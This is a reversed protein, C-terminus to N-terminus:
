LMVQEHNSFKTDNTMRSMLDGKRQESFYGIPLTLIKKYLDNRLQVMMGNRMPSMFYYSLYVFLNKLFIAGVIFGCVLALAVSKGNAGNNIIVKSVYYNLTDFFSKSSFELAPKMTILDAQNFIIKMFPFLM